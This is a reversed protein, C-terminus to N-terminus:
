QSVVKGYAGVGAIVYVQGDLTGKSYVKFFRNNENIHLRVEDTTTFSNLVSKLMRFDLVHSIPEENEDNVRSCTITEIAVRNSVLKVELDATDGTGSLTLELGVMSASSNTIIAREAVKLLKNKDILTYAGLSKLYESPISPAELNSKLFSFYCRGDLSEVGIDKDTEILNVETGDLGKVFILYLPIVLKRIKMEPIGSFTKFVILGLKNFGNASYVIGKSIVVFDFQKQDEKKDALFNMAFKLSFMLAEKNVTYEKREAKLHEEFTLMKDPPFSQLTGFSKKNDTTYVKVVLTDPDFNVNISDVEVKSVLKELIKPDTTFSFDEGSSNTIDITCRAKLDSNTGQVIMKPGRVIFLLHGREEQIVVASLARRSLTIANKFENKPVIIDM